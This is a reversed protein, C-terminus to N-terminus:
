SKTEPFVFKPIVKQVLRNLAAIVHGFDNIEVTFRITGQDDEPALFVRNGTLNGSELGLPNPVFEDQDQDYNFRMNENRSEPSEFDEL